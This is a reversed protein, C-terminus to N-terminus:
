CWLKNNIQYLYAKYLITNNKKYHIQNIYSGNYFFLIEDGCSNTIKSPINSSSTITLTTGDKYLIRYPLSYNYDLYEIKNDYKDKLIYYDRGAYSYYIYSNTEPNIANYGNYSDITGDPNTIYFNDGDKYLTPFYNFKVGRFIGGSGRLQYNYILSPSMVSVGLTKFLPIEVIINSASPCLNVITKLSGIEHTISEQYPKLGQNITVSMKNM